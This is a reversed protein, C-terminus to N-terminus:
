QKTYTFSYKCDSDGAPSGTIKTESTGSMTGDSNVTFSFDSDSTIGGTTYSCTTTTECTSDDTQSSCNAASSSGADTAPAPLKVTQDPINACTGVSSSDKTYHVTYTGDPPTCSTSTSSGTSGSGGDAKSGGFVSGGADGGSQTVTTSSSCGVAAFTGAAAALIGFAATWKM